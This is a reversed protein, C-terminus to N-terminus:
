ITYVCSCNRNKKARYLATDARKIIDEQNDNQLFETIGLSCTVQGVNTFNTAALINRIREAVIYAESAVTNPLVVFFEEGGWRGVRENSRLNNSIIQAFEHLVLDGAPHGFNDNISKFLDIDILIVSFKILYRQARLYEETLIDNIKRRNYIQTLGDIISIEELERNKALLESHAIDLDRNRIDLMNKQVDLKEILSRNVLDYHDKAQETLRRSQECRELKKKLIVIQKKLNDITENDM